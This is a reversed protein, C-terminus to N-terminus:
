DLAFPCPHPIPIYFFPPPPLISELTISIPSPLPLPYFNSTSPGDHAQQMICAYSSLKKQTTWTKPLIRDKSDLNEVGRNSYREIIRIIEEKQRERESYVFLIKEHLCILIDIKRVFYFKKKKKFYHKAWMGLQYSINREFSKLAIM